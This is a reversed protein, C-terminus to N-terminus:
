GGDVLEAADSAVADDASAGLDDLIDGGVEDGIAVGGLDPGDVEDAELAAAKGLVGDASQFFGQAEEVGRGEIGGLGHGFDFALEAGDGFHAVDDVEDAGAFAADNASGAQGDRWRNTGGGCHGCTVFILRYVATSFNSATSPPQHFPKLAEGICLDRAREGPGVSVPTLRGLTAEIKAVAVAFM